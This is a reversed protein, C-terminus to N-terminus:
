VLWDPLRVDNWGLWCICFGGILAIGIALPSLTTEPTRPWFTLALAALMLPWLPLAGVSELGFLSLAVTWGVGTWLLAQGILSLTDFLPGICAILLNAAAIGYLPRQEAFQITDVQMMLVLTVGAALTLLASLAGRRMRAIM